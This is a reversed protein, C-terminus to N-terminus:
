LFITFKSYKVKDSTATLFHVLDSGSPIRDLFNNEAGSGSFSSFGPLVLGLVGTVGKGRKRDPSTPVGERKRRIM